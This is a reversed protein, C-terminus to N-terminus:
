LINNYQRVSHLTMETVTVMITRKMGEQSAKLEIVASILTDLKGSMDRALDSKGVSPM